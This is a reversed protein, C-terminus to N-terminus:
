IGQVIGTGGTTIILNYTDHAKLLIEELEDPDDPIIKM